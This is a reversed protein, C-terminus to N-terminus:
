KIRRRTNRPYPPFTRFPRPNPIVRRPTPRKHAQKPKPQPKPPEPKPPEPKPVEWPTEDDVTSWMEWQMGFDKWEWIVYGDGNWEPGWSNRIIFGEKTWGVCTVAHGGALPGKPQWFQPRGNNYYPFAVLIPGHDYIAKKAGEITSVSAYHKIKFRSADEVAVKPLTTPERLSYPLFQERASGYKYLIKMVDRCFMGESPKNSRYFYVSDPSMYGKYEENDMKEQWEKMCCATFAACTGRSGQDRVPELDKRLDHVEPLTSSTAVTLPLGEYKWDREDDPSKKLVNQREM